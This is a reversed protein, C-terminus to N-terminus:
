YVTTLGEEDTKLGWSLTYLTSYEDGDVCVLSTEFSIEIPYTTTRAFEEVTTGPIDVLSSNEEVPYYPPNPSDFTGENQPCVSDKVIKQVWRYKGSKCCKCFDEGPAFSLEVRAGYLWNTVGARMSPGIYPRFTKVDLSGCQDAFVGLFGGKTVSYSDGETMLGLLDRKGVPNNSVLVYFNKEVLRRKVPMPTASAYRDYRDFSMWRGTVPEYHRYNYYVTATDDEAYESSFRFPNAAASAGRSVTLAGFPAYEYHAAVDTDSAIVESVNKNGDHTYYAVSNGRQWALPRTAVNETCDWVFYNYDSTTTTSRFNAIQLYGNYVFRRDNKTVRRGMRDYSMTIVTDGQTWRVPRNEGNYIVQWIGTATKVLTQNGDADYVPTFDDVATYQNLQSATYVSNTGREASTKRNGIDDFDYGYRYDSDIAATANTLESRANYLYMNTDSTAFASGSKDCGIRRGAADYTYAYRSITGAPSANNVELLEDRNGYAWRATLGNPYTLLSKFDSGPLFNWAFPTESGAVQMAALRGTAPDYSLTSQRVGNLAYGTDRGFTDYFREITNTGAIGIVTENTLSGFADYAFTTTGAADIAHIQRGMADYSLVVSPTGDSYDTRTLRGWADYSYTTEVGRAWARKTLRGNADYAYSPGKGDAYVKNTVSGSAEDYFWQTVDGDQAGEARYTTMSVKNGFLDYAYSVPYTAGGEYTKHGRLDYAYTVADGLPNTVRVLQGYNDYGYTTRNNDADITAAQRDFSDYETITANGRGDISTYVRGLGDYLSRSEVGSASVSRVAVGLRSYSEARGTQALSINIGVKAFGDFEVRSESTNGRGDTVLTESVLAPTLGTVRSARSQSLPAITADSCSVVNTQVAWIDSGRLAYGSYSESKRWEGSAVRTTTAVRNGLTDYTIENTPEGDSAISVICGYADYTNVSSLVAGRFGSRESRISRGLMNEYRKTFRPSDATEGQVTRSWRTGNQLVGYTYFEPTVGTGTISLTDGDSNRTTIITAGNPAINTVVLGDVSYSTRSTGRGPITRAIVRGLADYSTTTAPIGIHETFNTMWTATQRGLGDYAYCTTVWTVNTLDLPILRSSAVMRGEADYDWTTTQGDPQTESIKHCCDWATMTVQGALNEVQIRKGQLNYTMRNRSIVYWTGDIFAESREEVIEGRANTIRTDRTTKGSVPSTAQEHLHTVTETWVNTVLSYDYADFRGDERRVSKLKGAKVGSDTEWYTKVTRMAGAAGYAAGQTAARETIETWPGYVHYTREVEIGAIKKVTTRPRSDVPPVVDSPDVSAYSRTVLKDPMDSGSRKESVIRDAADYAFETVLGSQEVKRRVKGRGNGSNVYEWETVRTVDGRGEVRNTISYGWSDYRYNRVDRSLLGSGGSRVEKVIRAWKGDELTREISEVVGSQRTLTWDGVLYDFIYVRPDANGSRHTVVARKGGNGSRVSLVHAPQVDPLVYLGNAANRAPVNRIPYVFIDYGGDVVRVDALRSPTLFQRVGDTSYVIDIGMDAPTTVIGRSDKVSVLSGPRGTRDTALFRRVTGDTEYLDYYVPDHTTAWGRADVMQLREDMPVYLSPDPRGVSEGEAFVFKVGEGDPHSFVVEKPTVGDSMVANGIRKFIYGVMAYVSDPTFVLPSEDDAFVKLSCPRSDTWPTTEGMGVLIKICGNSIDVNKGGKPSCGCDSKVEGEEGGPPNRMICSGALLRGASLVVALSVIFVALNKM